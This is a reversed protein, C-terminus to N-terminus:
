NSSRVPEKQSCGTSELLLVEGFDLPNYSDGSKNSKFKKVKASSAAIVCAVDCGNSLTYGVLFMNGLRQKTIRDTLYRESM